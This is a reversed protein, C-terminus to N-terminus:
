DPMQVFLHDPTELWFEAPVAKSNFHIRAASGGELDAWNRYANFKEFWNNLQKLMSANQAPTTKTGEYTNIQFTSGEWVNYGMQYLPLDPIIVDLFMEKLLMETGDVVIPTEALIEPFAVSVFFQDQEARIELGLSKSRELEYFLDRDYFEFYPGENYALNNYFPNNYYSNNGPRELYFRTSGDEASFHVIRGDNAANEIMYAEKVGVFKQGEVFSRMNAVTVVEWKKLKRAIKATLSPNPVRMGGVAVNPVRVNPLNVEVKPVKASRAAKVGKRFWGQSFASSCAFVLILIGLHWKKM